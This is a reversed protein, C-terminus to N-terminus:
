SVFRGYRERIESYAQCRLGLAQAYAKSLGGCDRGLSAVYHGHGEPTVGARGLRM